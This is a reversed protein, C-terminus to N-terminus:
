KATLKKFLDKTAPYIEKFKDYKKNYLEVHAPNPEITDTVKIFADCAAEVSPFLGDGVAALIAA